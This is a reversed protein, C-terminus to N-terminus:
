PWAYAVGIPILTASEGNTWLILPTTQLLLSGTRSEVLTWSIEMAPGVRLAIESRAGVSHDLVVEHTAGAPATLDRDEVQIANVRTHQPTDGVVLGAGIALRHLVQWRVTPGGALIWGTTRGLTGGFLLNAGIAIPGAVRYGGFVRLGVALLPMDSFAYDHEPVCDFLPPEGQECVRTMGHSDTFSVRESLGLNGFDWHLYGAFAGVELVERSTDGRPQTSAPQAAAPRALFWSLCCAMAALILTLGRSAM